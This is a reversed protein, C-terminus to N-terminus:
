GQFASLLTIIAYVHAVASAIQIILLWWMYKIKIVSQVFLSITIGASVLVCLMMLPAVTFLAGLKHFSSKSLLEMTPGYLKYAFFMAGAQVALQFAINLIQFVKKM